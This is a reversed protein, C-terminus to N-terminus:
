RYAETYRYAHIAPLYAEAELKIDARIQRKKNKGTKEKPEKFLPWPTKQDAPFFIPVPGKIMIRNEEMNKNIFRINARLHPALEQVIALQESPALYGLKNIQSRIAEDSGLSELRNIAQDQSIKKISRTNAWTWSITHPASSLIPLSRYCQKLHLRSLGFRKLTNQTFQSRKHLTEEFLNQLYPCKLSIKAYKLKLVSQKFAKKRNNLESVVNLTEPSAGLFGALVLIEKPAQEEHYELQQIAALARKRLIIQEPTTPQLPASELWGILNSDDLVAASLKILSKELNLFSNLVDIRLESELM